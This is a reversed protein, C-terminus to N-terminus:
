FKFVVQLTTRLVSNQKEMRQIVSSYCEMTQLREDALPFPGLKLTENYLDLSLKYQESM